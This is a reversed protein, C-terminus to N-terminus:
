ENLIDEESLSTFRSVATKSKTLYGLRTGLNEQDITWYDADPQVTWTMKVDITWYDANPQVKSTM